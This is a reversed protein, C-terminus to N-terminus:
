HRFGDQSKDFLYPDRERNGQKNKENSTSRLTLSIWIVYFFFQLRGDLILLTATEVIILVVTTNQDSDILLVIQRLRKNGRAEYIVSEEAPAGVPYNAIYYNYITIARQVHSSSFPPHREVRGSKERGM